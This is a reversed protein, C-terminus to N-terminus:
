IETDGLHRQKKNKTKKQLHIGTKSFYQEGSTLRWYFETIKHLYQILVREM